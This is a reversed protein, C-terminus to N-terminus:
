PRPKDGLGPALAHREAFHHDHSFMATDGRYHAIELGTGQHGATSGAQKFVFLHM